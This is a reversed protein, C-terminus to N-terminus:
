VAVGGAPHGGQQYNRSEAILPDAPPRLSRSGKPSNGGESRTSVMPAREGEDSSADAEATAKQQWPPRAGPSGFAYIVTAAAVLAGGGVFQLGPRFDFLVVSLLTGLIVSCATSFNKLINDGYKIVAAVVLGGAANLLVLALLPADFGLSFASSSSCSLRSERAM